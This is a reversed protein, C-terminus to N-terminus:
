AEKRFPDLGSITASQRSHELLTTREPGRPRWPSRPLWWTPKKFLDGLSRLEDLEAFLFM